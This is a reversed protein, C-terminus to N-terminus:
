KVEFSLQVSKTAFVHCLVTCYKVEPFMPCLRDVMGEISRRQLIDHHGSVGAGRVLAGGFLYGRVSSRRPGRGERVFV